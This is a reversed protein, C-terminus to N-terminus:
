EKKNGSGSKLSKSIEKQAGRDCKSLIDVFWNDKAESKIIIDKNM